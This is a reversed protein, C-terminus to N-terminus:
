LKPIGHRHFLLSSQLTNSNTLETLLDVPNPQNTPRAERWKERKCRMWISSKSIDFREALQAASWNEVVLFYRIATWYPKCLYRRGKPKVALGGKVAAEIQADLRKLAAAIAKTLEPDDDAETTEMKTEM